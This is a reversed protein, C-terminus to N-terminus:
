DKYYPLTHIKYCKWFASIWFYSFYHRGDCYCNDIGTDWLKTNNWVSYCCLSRNAWWNSGQKRRFFSIIFGAIAATILGKEPTVGSAIALAISLPLAIVAVILGSICGRMIQNTNLDENRNIIMSLIKPRLMKKSKRVYM